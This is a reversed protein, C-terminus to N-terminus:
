KFYTELIFPELLICGLNNSKLKIKTSDNDFSLGLCQLDFGIHLQGYKKKFININIGYTRRM